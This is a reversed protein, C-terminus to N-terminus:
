PRVLYDAAEELLQAPSMPSDSRDWGGILAALVTLSDGLPQSVLFGQLALQEATRAGPSPHPEIHAVTEPGTLALINM